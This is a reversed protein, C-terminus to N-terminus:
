LALFHAYINALRSQFVASLRRYVNLGFKPYTDFLRNMKRADIKIAQVNTDAIATATYVAHETLSSWGFIDSRTTLNYVTKAEGITLIVVGKELIYLDTAADGKNFIVAGKDFTAEQCAKDAIEAMVSLDLGTFLDMETMRIEWGERNPDM